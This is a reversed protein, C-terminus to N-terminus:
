DMSRLAAVIMSAARKATRQASIAPVSLSRHGLGFLCALIVEEAGKLAEGSLAPNAVCAFAGLSKRLRACMDAITGGVRANRFGEALIDFYLAEHPNDMMELLLLEFTQEISIEGANLRAQLSLIIAERDHADSAVIAEIIDEKGKFLRYIQGVSVQAASALEAMASQHFGHAAFLDRAANLIRNRATQEHQPAAM